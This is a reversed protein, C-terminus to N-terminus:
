NTLPKPEANTQKVWRVKNREIFFHSGCTSASRWLSPRLTVTGSQLKIQWHPQRTRMLNVGIRAGCRCPCAMVVWKLADDPGVLYISSGLRKPVESMSAVRRVNSYKSRRYLRLWAAYLQELLGGTM